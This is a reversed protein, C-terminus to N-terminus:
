LSKNENESSLKNDNDSEWGLEDESEETDINPDTLELQILVQDVEFWKVQLYKHNKDLEWGFGIPTLNIEPYADLATKYLHAICWTRKPESNM